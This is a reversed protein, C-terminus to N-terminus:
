GPEQGPERIFDLFARLSATMYQRNPYYLHFGSREPSWSELASELRGAALHRSVQLDLLYGLGAGSLVADLEADMDDVIINGAPAVAMRGEPGHFQWHYPRGSPFRFVVSQHETIQRPHQPKGHRRFYEPTAVVQLRVPPGIPTAIMDKEVIDYLRIGADFGNQVIDTLRDDSTVDVRIQPYRQSFAALLPMLVLRAATRAANIKLIGTPTDRYCNIEDLMTNIEDFAPRLRQYLNQGAGTLSVSRTTRNFLRLQLRQELQKIAHSIASSSLGLEDGAARFSKHRAVAFFTSFDSLNISM